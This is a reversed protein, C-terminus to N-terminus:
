PRKGNPSPPAPPAPPAAPYVQISSSSHVGSREVFFGIAALPVIIGAPFVESLSKGSARVALTYKAPDKDVKVKFNGDGTYTAVIKMLDEKHRLLEDVRKDSKYSELGGLVLKAMGRPAVQAARLMDIVGDSMTAMSELGSKSTDTWTWGLGDAYISFSAAKHRAILDSLLNPGDMHRTAEKRAAASLTMVWAIVPKSDIAAAAYGLNTGAAHSPARWSDSMRDRVWPTAGALLVHDKTVGVSMNDDMEVWAGGGVPTAKRHATAAIKDVNATTFKGHVCALFNPDHSPVFQVFFTGDSVDSTVDIGTAQRALGRMGEVEGIMKRVIAAAEPAGKIQPQNPLDVLVKYNGSILSAADVHVVLDPDVVAYELAADATPPRPDEHIGFGALGLLLSIVEIIGFTPM